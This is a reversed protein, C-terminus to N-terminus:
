ILVMSQSKTKKVMKEMDGKETYVNADMMLHALHFRAGIVLDRIDVLKGCLKKISRATAEKQDRFEEILSLIGALKESSLYWTMEVSDYNVGLVQGETRPTFSKDPDSSDALKVNLDKCVDRYAIDFKDM